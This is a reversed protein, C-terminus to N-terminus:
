DNANEKDNFKKNAAKVSAVKTGNAATAATGTGSAVAGNAATTATNTTNAATQAQQQLSLKLQAILKQKQAATQASAQDTKAQQDEMAFLQQLMKPDVDEKLNKDIAQRLTM